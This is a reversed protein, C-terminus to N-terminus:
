LVSDPSLYHGVGPQFCCFTGDALILPAFFREDAVAGFGDVILRVDVGRRAAEALADRVRTACEDTAFIYFCLRLTKRAGDILGLLAKLRGEGGPYFALSLGQAEVSFPPPDCFEALPEDREAM